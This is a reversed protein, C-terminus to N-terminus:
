FNTDNIENFMDIVQQSPEYATKIYFTNTEVKLVFVVKLLRGNDTYSLFWQTPPITKHEERSDELYDQDNSNYFCEIVEKKSVGHKEDLKDLIRDSFVFRVEDLEDMNSM